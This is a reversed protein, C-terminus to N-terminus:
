NFRRACNGCRVTYRPEWPQGTKDLVCTFAAQCHGSNTCKALTELRVRCTEFNEIMRGCKAESARLSKELKEVAARLVKQEEAQHRLVAVGFDNVLEVLSQGHQEDALVAELHGSVAGAMVHQMNKDGSLSLALSAAGLLSEPDGHSQIAEKINATSKEILTPINYYDAIANVRIHQSLLWDPEPLMSEEALTTPTNDGEQQPPANVAYEGTYLFDIMQAVTDAAFDKVHM